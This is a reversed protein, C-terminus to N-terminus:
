RAPDSSRQIAPYFTTNVVVRKCGVRYDPTLRERLVKDRVAFRLNLKCCVSTFWNQLRHGTVAKTLIHKM